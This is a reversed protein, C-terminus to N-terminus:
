RNGTYRETKIPTASQRLPRSTSVKLSPLKLSRPGSARRLSSRSPIQFPDDGKANCSPAFVCNDTRASVAYSPLWAHAERLSPLQAASAHQSSAPLIDAWCWFAYQLSFEHVRLVM